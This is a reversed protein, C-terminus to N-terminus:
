TDHRATSSRSGSVTPEARCSPFARRSRRDRYRSHARRRGIAHDGHLQDPARSSSAQGRSSTAARRIAAITSTSRPSATAPWRSLLRTGDVNGKALTACAESLHALHRPQRKGGQAGVGARLPSENERRPTNGMALGCLASRRLDGRAPRRRSAARRERRVRGRSIPPRAGRRRPHLLRRQCRAGRVLDGQSYEPKGSAARVLNGDRDIRPKGPMGCWMKGSEHRHVTIDAIHLKLQPIVIEAFGLLTGRDLPKWAVVEVSFKDSPPQPRELAHAIEGASLPGTM